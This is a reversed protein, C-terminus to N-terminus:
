LWKRIGFAPQSGRHRGCVGGVLTSVTHGSYPLLEYDVGHHIHTHLLIVQAYLVCYYSLCVGYGRLILLGNTCVRVGEDEVKKKEVWGDNM